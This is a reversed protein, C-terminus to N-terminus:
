GTFLGLVGAKELLLLHLRAGLHAPELELVQQLTRRAAGENQLGIYGLGMLYRCHIENSGGPDSEFVSLHPLSVAFFDIEVAKNLHAEGYDILKRFVSGARERKGLKLLALGQYFISEPPHDNYYLAPAPEMTGAAAKTYWAHAEAARGMKECAYGQWYDPENEPRSYLKGEGLSAPYVATQKIKELAKEPEGSRLVAKAQLLLLTTYLAATKGEGGEWPHFKRAMLLEYARENNGILTHLHVYELYLDDRENVQEEYRTLFALREAPSHKLEKKLQDLEFLVRADRTDLEFARAFCQLAEAPRNFKNYYALGLNRQATPFDRDLAVSREWYERAAEYQRQSYYFNGLYYCAKYDEAFLDLATNLAMVDEIRNPFVGDPSMGFASRCWAGAEALNGRQQEYYALYYHVLPDAAGEYWRLFEIAEEPLGAHYYDLSIEIYAHSNNRMLRILEAKAAEIDQLVKADGAVKTKERGKENQVAGAEEQVALDQAAVLAVATCYKEFYSGFDFNDMAISEEAFAWAEKLRGIKRLLCAKLHRAKLSKTNRSLSNEAFELATNWDGRATCIRALQLFANDQWAANWTSKFFSDYAEQRRGQYQLALGLNYFPEGDYPNPNHQQLRHIAKRFYAESEGFRGRRLLWLGMANNCRVDGEDRRLAEQYYDVPSVRAHRYQELHLGALYLAETSALSAPSGIPSAPDPIAQDVPAVPTYRLLEKENEDLVIMCLETEKSVAVAPIITEDYTQTPSLRATAAHLLIDGYYLRITLLADSTSYVRMRIRGDERELNLLVEASGNKIAGLNKYPLFYQKFERVENPMIWSFDPQNDTYVGCMLELYPGDEDTLHTDWVKGFDGSGWTWQKKGPSIHHDAVHVIGANKQHHYGGLFDFGSNVAMYSTPVPINHYRSIDTGPSYNVKYYTGTAIPFDSVDRRGHDFVAHVDPPFVSQYHEDASVAPNAWWLFSQPFPTSNYLRARLEIFAKGPYLRFGLACKTRFMKEYENVWVTQSGDAHTEIHHDVPMFTSPRHHQPWNFEIGGSIWPGALGVLAPKIVRNYYVFHYDNTKDYAMQIRGGLEPLIMVKIYENELFLATWEKDQKEDFVKDIVAYPYVVGSSGQYVRTELFLPNKDPEGTQYTPIIIKETWARVNMM